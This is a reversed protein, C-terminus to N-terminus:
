RYNEASLYILFQCTKCIDSSNYIIGSLPIIFIGNSLIQMQSQDYTNHIYVSFTIKLSLCNLITEVKRNWQLLTMKLAFISLGRRDSTLTLLFIFFLVQTRRDIILCYDNILCYYFSLLVVDLCCVIVPCDFERLRRHIIRQFFFLNSKLRLRFQLEEGKSIQIM